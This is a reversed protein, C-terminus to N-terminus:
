LQDKSFFDDNLPIYDVTTSIITLVGDFVYSESSPFLSKDFPQYEHYGRWSTNRGDVVPIDPDHRDTEDILFLLGSEKEFLYYRDYRQPTKVLIRHAEHGNYKWVGKYYLTSGNTKWFYLPERFDYAMAFDYYFDPSIDQWGTSDISFRRFHNKGDTYMALQLTDGHWIEVRHSMPSRFWRLMVLTDGDQNRNFIKSQLFLVSDSRIADYNLMKVYNGVVEAATDVKYQHNQGAAVIAALLLITVLAAKKM